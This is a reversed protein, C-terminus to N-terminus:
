SLSKNVTQKEGVLASLTFIRVPGTTTTGDWTISLEFNIQRFRLAKLFKAFKRLSGGSTGTVTQILSPASLPQAWTGLKVVAWTTTKLMGWTVGFNVVVPTVTGTIANKAAVDAGWWFLRKYRHPVEFDYNKTKIYCTMTEPHLASIETDLQFIKTAESAVSSSSIYSPNATSEDRVPIAVWPGIYRTGTDWRTWVKTKLGYAYIKAYYKCILRDGVISLHMPDAWPSPKTTDLVFPVKSNVKTFDYNNIEYVSREHMVFLSNEYHVVCNKNYAGIRKNIPRMVGQLPTNDFAFVYTSDNKFIMLNDNYVVIDINKQGDGKNVHVTNAGSWSTTFNAPDTFSVLTANLGTQTPGGVVYMRDKHVVASGGRPIAAVTNWNTGDWYGGAGVSGPLAVVWAKDEYQVMTSAQVTATGPITTWSVGNYIWLGANNSGLLQQAGTGPHVFYGLLYMRNSGGGPNAIDYVAPRSILSGDLDLELNIADVLETDQLGTPDSHSNIGGTFPGLKVATGPM